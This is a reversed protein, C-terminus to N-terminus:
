CTRLNLCHHNHLITHLHLDPASCTGPASTCLCICSLHLPLAHKSTTSPTSGPASASTCLQLPPASCICLHLPLNLHLTCTCPDASTHLPATASHLYLLHTPSPNHHNNLRFPPFFSNPPFFSIRLRIGCIQRSSSYIGKTRREDKMEKM